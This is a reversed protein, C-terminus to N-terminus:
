RQQGAVAELARRAEAPTPYTIVRRFQDPRNWAATWACIGGSSAGTIARSPADHRLKVSKEVEPLIEECVFKGYQDSLTDYEVSRM